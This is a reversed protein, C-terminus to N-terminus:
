MLREDELVIVKVRTARNILKVNNSHAFNLLAILAKQNFEGGDM